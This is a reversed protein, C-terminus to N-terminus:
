NIHRFVLPWYIWGSGNDVNKSTILVVFGDNGNDLQASRIERASSETGNSCSHVEILDLTSIQGFDLPIEELKECKELILRELCPFSDAYANWERIDTSRIKLFKLKTFEEDEMDWKQGVFAHLLKLVELNPLEAVTSLVRWPLGTMSLTLEKLTSPLRLDCPYNMGTLLCRVDLSELNSLFDLAPFQLCLRQDDYFRFKLKRVKPFRRLLRKSYENGCIMLWSLTDVNDLQGEELMSNGFSFYPECKLFIHRLTKMKWISSPVMIKNTESYVCLVELCLLSDINPPLDSIGKIALYRLHMLSTIEKPFRNIFVGYELDLVRLFKFKLFFSSNNPHTDSHGHEPIILTRAYLASPNSEVFSRWMIHISLRHQKFQINSPCKADKLSRLFRQEEVKAMCLEFLLDHIRCGKIGANSSKEVVTVLSRVILNMLFDMAVDDLRETGTKPILGEAVWLRILKKVKVVKGQQFAGFYLFCPKLHESLHTYSLELINMCDEGIKSSLNTAIEKWWTLDRVRKALVGAIVVISLPLGECLKVIQMGVAFLNEPIEDENFLKMRLLEWSEETSLPYLPHVSSALKTQLAMDHIRSTIMIRSGNSDDPFSEKLKYWAEIDWIDDLVILYQNGKLYRYLKLALEDESMEHNKGYDVGTVDTLIDQLLRKLQYIQSVSCWFIKHFSYKISPDNYVKNALTTKGQGAMGVISVVELTKSGRTLRNIIEKAENKFGVVAGDLRSSKANEPITQNPYMEVNSIRGNYVSEDAMKEAEKIVYEIEDLFIYLCIMKYWIKNEKFFCSDVAHEVAYALGLIRLWLDKIEKFDNQQEMFDKLYPKISIFKEQIALLLCKAFPISSTKERLSELLFDIFGLGNTNPFDSWLLEQIQVYNVKIDEKLTDIKQLFDREYPIGDKEEHSSLSSILSASEDLLANAKACIDNGNRGCSKPPDVLFTILIILGDRLHMKFSDKVSARLDELLMDISNAVLEGMVLTNTQLSMSAKRLVGLFIRVAEPSCPKIQPLVDLYITNVKAYTEGELKDVWYLFSLCAVKNTWGQIQVRFDRLETSGVVAILCVFPHNM